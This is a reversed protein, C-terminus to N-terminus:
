QPKLGSCLFGTTAYTESKFGMCEFRRMFDFAMAGEDSWACPKISVDVFRRLLLEWAQHTFRWYDPYEGEIGHWPWVMPSTVLLRGGPKLVRFVQAIARKPEECHELVETLVISDFTDAEFPLALLDGRIDENHLGFTRYGDGLWRRPVYVGVDLIRRGLDARQAWIWHELQLWHPDPFPIAHLDPTTQAWQMLRAIPESQSLGFLLVDRSM